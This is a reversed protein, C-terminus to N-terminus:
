DNQSNRKKRVSVLVIATGLFIVAAPIAFLKEGTKTTPKNTSTKKSEEKVKTNGTTTESTKSSEKTEEENNKDMLAAQANKLEAIVSNIQEETLGDLENYMKAKALVEKFHDLNENNVKTSLDINEAEQIATQLKSKDVSEPM